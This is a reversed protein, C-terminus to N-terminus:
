FSDMSDWEMNEAKVYAAKGKVKIKYWGNELGLCDFTEPLNGEAYDIKAIIPSSANPAKRINVAGFNKPFVIGQGKSASYLVVKLGKKPEWAEDQVFIHYKTKNEGIYRGVVEGNKDVVVKGSTKQGFSLISVFVILAIFFKKM